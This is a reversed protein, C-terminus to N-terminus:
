SRNIYKNVMEVLDASVGIELAEDCSVWRFEDHEWNMKVEKSETECAYFIVVIYNGNELYSRVGIIRLNDVRLKTEENIERLIGQVPDEGKELRGGAFSWLHPNTCQKSRKMVLMNGDKHFIFAKQGVFAYPEWGFNDNIEVM